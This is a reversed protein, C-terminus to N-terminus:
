RDARPRLAVWAFEVAIWAIPFMGVFMALPDDSALAANLFYLAVAVAIAVRVIRPVASVLRQRLRPAVHEDAHIDPRQSQSLFHGM